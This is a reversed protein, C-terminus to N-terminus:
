ACLAVGTTTMMTEPMTKQYIRQRACYSIVTLRSSSKHSLFKILMNTAGKFNESHIIENKNRPIMLAATLRKKVANTAYM